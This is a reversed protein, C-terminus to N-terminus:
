PKKEIKVGPDGCTVNAKGTVIVTIESSHQPLLGAMSAKAAKIAAEQEPTLM